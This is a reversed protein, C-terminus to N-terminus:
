AAWVHLTARAVVLEAPVAAPREGVAVALALDSLLGGIHSNRERERERM